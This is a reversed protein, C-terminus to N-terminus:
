GGIGGLFEGSGTIREVAGKGSQNQARYGWTGKSRVVHIVSIPSEIFECQAHERLRSCKALASHTAQRIISNPDIRKLQIKEIEIITGNHEYTPKSNELITVPV